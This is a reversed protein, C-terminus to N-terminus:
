GNDTQIGHNRNHRKKSLRAIAQNYVELIQPGVVEIDYQKVTKNQWEHLQKALTNNALLEGLRDAFESANKPNVLLKPRAELVSIYGPNNGGLVVGSGAAMAEILVIGFSEGYLSPFCAIAASNLLKAKEDEKIYGLFEIRSGL